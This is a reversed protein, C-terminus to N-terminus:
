IVKAKLAGKKRYDSILLTQYNRENGDKVAQEYFTLILDKKGDNDADIEAIVKVGFDWSKANSEIGLATIKPKWYDDRKLSKPFNLNKEDNNFSSPFSNLDLRAFFEKGYNTQPTKKLVLRNSENSQRLLFIVDCNIYESKYLSDAVTESVKSKEKEALYERCSGVRKGSEFNLATLPKALSADYNEFSKLTASDYIVPATQASGFSNAAFLFLLALFTKWVLLEPLLAATKEDLKVIQELLDAELKRRSKYRSQKRLWKVTGEWDQACVLKWFGLTATRRWIKGWQFSMSAIVTQAQSPLDDFTIKVTKKDETVKGKNYPSINYAAKLAGVERKKVAIDIEDAEAKTITLPNEDLFKVADNKKLLLYPKLKAHLAASLNLRKLDSENNQGLDFGTSITVGSEDIVTGNKHKPVYGKLIKAGERAAIFKWDIKDSM